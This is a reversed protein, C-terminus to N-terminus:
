NQEPVRAKQNIDDTVILDSQHKMGALKDLLNVDSATVNVPPLQKQSTDCSPASNLNSIINKLDEPHHEVIRLSEM